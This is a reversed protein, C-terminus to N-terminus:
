YLHYSPPICIYESPTTTSLRLSLRETGNVLVIPPRPQQRDLCEACGHAFASPATHIYESAELLMRCLHSLSGCPRLPSRFAHRKM